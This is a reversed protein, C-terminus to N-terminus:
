PRMEKRLTLGNPRLKKVESLDSKVKALSTEDDGASNRYAVATAEIGRWRGAKVQCRLLDSYHSMVALKVNPSSESFPGLRDIASHLAIEALDFQQLAMLSTALNHQTAAYRIATEMMSLPDDIEKLQEVAETASAVAEVYKGQKQLAISLNNLSMVLDSEYQLVDPAIAHLQRVLRIANAFAREGEPYQEAHLYASGLSNYIVAVEASARLRNSSQGISALRLRLSEELLEIAAGPDSALTISALNALTVSLGRAALENEPNLKSLSSLRDVADRLFQVAEKERNVERMLLGFNNTTVALETAFQLNLPDSETISRQISLARTYQEISEDRQGVEALALALLNLNGAAKSAIEFSEWEGSAVMRIEEFRRASERYHPIADASSGLEKVLSGIQSYTVALEAELKPDEKAMVAFREYYALTQRLLSQRVHETGPISALQEAVQTGLEQVVRHGERFHQDARREAFQTEKVQHRLLFTSATTGVSLVGMFIAAITIMRRHRLMSATVRVGFSPAKALTPLGLLVARLDDAFQEASDYRDDKQKSMAKQIVVSLDQPIDHRFDTLRPAEERAIVHLLAPGDDGLVAPRLALMEFLTAALSYIDTRHDVTENRGSAQEPSMYRITGVFDGSLTLPHENQCRALGFDTIWIKGSMDLLLNSPKVDRHVIGMQHAAHIAEAIEIAWGVVTRWVRSATQPAGTCSAGGHRIWVDISEGPILQMAYYHIGRESGVSHVPVINPHQLLGAAHAENKFRAIQRQDLLSSMPLLKIAVKRNLSQQCAEYVVGMGGRGIERVITFDGLQKLNEPIANLWNEADQFGVAVGFLANLKGLYEALAEQLDPNELGFRQVNVSEGKELACLVRDLEETLRNQQDETFRNLVNSSLSLDLDDDPLM